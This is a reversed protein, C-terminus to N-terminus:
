SDINAEATLREIDPGIVERAGRLEILGERELRTIKQSVTELTLRLYDALGIRRALKDLTFTVLGARHLLKPFVSFDIAWHSRYNMAADSQDRQVPTLNHNLLRMGRIDAKHAGAWEV